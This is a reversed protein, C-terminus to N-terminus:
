SPESGWRSIAEQVADVCFQVDMTNSLKWALVKCSYWDVVACRYLWGKLMRVYAVDM